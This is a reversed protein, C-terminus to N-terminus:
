INDKLLRTPQTQLVLVQARGEADFVELHLPTERLASPPPPNGPKGVVVANLAALEDFTVIPGSAPFSRDMAAAYGALEASEAAPSPAGSLVAAVDFESARIGAIRCSAAVSEVRATERMGALQEPPVSTGGAWIGRFQDVKSIAKLIEPNVPVRVDM